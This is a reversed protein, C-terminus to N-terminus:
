VPSHNQSWNLSMILTPLLVVAYASYRELFNGNSKINAYDINAVVAHRASRVTSLSGM